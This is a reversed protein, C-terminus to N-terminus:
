LIYARSLSLNVARVIDQKGVKYFKWGNRYRDVWGTIICSVDGVFTNGLLISRRKCIKIAIDHRDWNRLIVKFYCISLKEDYSQMGANYKAEYKHEYYTKLCLYLM